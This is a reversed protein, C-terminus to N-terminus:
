EFFSRIYYSNRLQLSQLNSKFTEFIRRKYFGAHEDGIWGDVAICQTGIRLQDAAQCAAFFSMGWHTGIEVYRRPRLLSFLAFIFQNISPGHM